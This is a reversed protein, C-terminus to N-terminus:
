VFLRAWLAQRLQVCLSLALELAVFLLSFHMLLLSQSQHSNFKVVTDFSSLNKIYPAVFGTQTGIDHTLDAPKSLQAIGNKKLHVLSQGIIWM